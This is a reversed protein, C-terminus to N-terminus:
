IDRSADTFKLTIVHNWDELLDMQVDVNEGHVTLMPHGDLSGAAEEVQTEGQEELRRRMQEFVSTTNIDRGDGKIKKMEADILGHARQGGFDVFANAVLCAMAMVLYLKSLM